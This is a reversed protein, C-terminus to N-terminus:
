KRLGDIVFSFSRYSVQPYHLKGHKLINEIGELAVALIRAERMKLVSILAKLIGKEVLTVFQEFTAGATCNSVAWVAEKKIEINDNILINILKDV